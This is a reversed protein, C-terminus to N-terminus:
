LVCSAYGLIKDDGKVRSPTPKWNNQLRYQL